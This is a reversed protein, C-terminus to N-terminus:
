INVSKRLVRGYTLFYHLRPAPTQCRFRLVLEDVVSSKGAGGTGTIGIVVSDTPVDRVSAVFRARAESDGEANQVGTRIAAGKGQNKEQFVFKLRVLQNTALDLSMKGDRLNQLFERTGDTSCDDVVIMEKPVPVSGIRELVQRITFAENYVPIVVSLLRFTQGSTKAAAGM